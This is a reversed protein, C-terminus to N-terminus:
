KKYIKFELHKRKGECVIFGFDEKIPLRIQKNNDCNVERIISYYLKKLIERMKHREESDTAQQLRENYLNILGVYQEKSYIAFCKKLDVVFLNDKTEVEVFDPLKIRKDKSVKIIKNGVIEKEGFM